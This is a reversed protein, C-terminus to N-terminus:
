GGHGGIRRLALLDAHRIEAPGVDGQGVGGGLHDEIGQAVVGRLGQEAKADGIRRQLLVVHIDEQAVPPRDLVLFVLGVEILSRDFHQAHVELAGFVREGNRLINRVLPDFAEIIEGRM